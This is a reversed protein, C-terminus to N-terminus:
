WIHVKSVVAAHDSPWLGSPTRDRPEDGIVTTHALVEHAGLSPESPSIWLLDIRRDLESVSNLLGKDQCCTFGPDNAHARPGLREDWADLYGAMRLQDYPSGARAIPQEESPGSNFDGVLIVPLPEDFLTEILEAAQADQVSPDDGENELHTNVFRYTKGRVTADLAVFGRKVEGSLGPIPPLARLTSFEVSEVDSVGVKRRVFVADRDTVTLIGDPMGDSDIDVPFPFTVATNDATVAAVYDLDRAQLADLLIEKYDLVPTTVPPAGPVSLEFRAVEQLGIVDPQERQIQQALADARETFDTGQVSQLFLAIGRILSNTPDTPDFEDLILDLDAGLYLNQTMVKVVPVGNSRDAALTQGSSVAYSAIFAILTLKNAFLRLKM